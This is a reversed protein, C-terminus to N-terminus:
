ASSPMRSLTADRPSPSTYLLCGYAEGEDRLPDFEATIIRTPALGTLDAAELLAVRPDTRQAMVPVYQDWFWVMADRTLFKGESNEWYSDTEFDAACVPYVLLQHALERGAERCAVAVAGALNGGASDGGVAVRAPDIGLETPGHDFVWETAALCDEYAAPFPAEPARRYDVSVVVCGACDALARATPDATEVDGIVWGGGHFWVLVGLGDRPSPRVVRVGLPGGPGDIVRNESSYVDPRNELPPTLASYIERLEDPSADSFSFGSQDLLTLLEACQHDIGSM